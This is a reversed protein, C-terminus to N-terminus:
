KEELLYQGPPKGGVREVVTKGAVTIVAATPRLGHRRVAEDALWLATAARWPVSPPSVRLVKQRRIFVPTELEVLFTLSLLGDEREESLLETVTVRRRALRSSIRRFLSVLKDRM